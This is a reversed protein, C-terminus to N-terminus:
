KTRNKKNLIHIQLVIYFFLGILLGELLGFIVPIM